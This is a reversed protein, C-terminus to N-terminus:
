AFITMRGIGQKEEGVWVWKTPSQTPIVASLIRELILSREDMKNQFEATMKEQGVRRGVPPYFRLLFPEFLPGVQTTRQAAKKSVHPAIPSPVSLFNM